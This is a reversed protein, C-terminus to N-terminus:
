VPQPKATSASRYINEAEHKAMQKNAFPGAIIEPRNYSPRNPHGRYGQVLWCGTAKCGLRNAWTSKPYAYDFKIGAPLIALDATNKIGDIPNTETTM